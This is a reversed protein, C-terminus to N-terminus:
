ILVISINIRIVIAKSYYKIANKYDGLKFYENGKKKLEEAPNTEMNKSPDKTTKSSKKKTHQKPSQNPPAYNQSPNYDYYNNQELNQNFFPSGFINPFFNFDNQNNQNSSNQQQNNGFFPPMFYNSFNNM